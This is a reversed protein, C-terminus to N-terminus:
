AKAGLAIGTSEQHHVPSPAERDEGTDDDGGVGTRLQVRGHGDSEQDVAVDRDCLEEHSDGRLQDAVEGETTTTIVAWVLTIDKTISLDVGISKIQGTYSFDAGSKPKFVCDFKEDTYVIVNTVGTLKCTLMGVDNGEAAHAAPSALVAAAAAACALKLIQKM